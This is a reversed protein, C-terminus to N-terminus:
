DPGAKPANLSVVKLWRAPYNGPKYQGTNGSTVAYSAIGLKRRRRAIVGKDTKCERALIYDPLKGLRQIISEPLFMPKFKRGPPIKGRGKRWMDRNNDTISGRWLHNPNCCEPNDCHHLVPGGLPTKTSISFAVRHARTITGRWYAIGYGKENKCKRWPWCEDAGCRNVNDWFETETNM